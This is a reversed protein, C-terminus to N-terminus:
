LYHAELENRVMKLSLCDTWDGSIWRIQNLAADNKLSTALLPLGSEAWVGPVPLRLLRYLAQLLTPQGVPQLLRRLQGIVM